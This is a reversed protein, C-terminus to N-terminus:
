REDNCEKLVRATAYTKGNISHSRWQLTVTGGNKCKYRNVFDVAAHGERVIRSDEEMTEPIDGEEVFYIFPRSMLEERSWGTATEWSKSLKIFTGHENAIALLDLSLDFFAELEANVRQLQRNATILKALTEADFNETM